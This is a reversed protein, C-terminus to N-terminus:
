RPNFPRARFRSRMARMSSEMDSDHRCDGGCQVAPMQEIPVRAITLARFREELEDGVLGVVRPRDRQPVWQDKVFTMEGSEAEVRQHFTAEALLADVRTELCQERAADVRVFRLGAPRVVGATL